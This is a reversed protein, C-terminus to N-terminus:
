AWARGEIEVSFTLTGEGSSLACIRDMHDVAQEATEFEGDYEPVARFDNFGHENEFIEYCSVLIM